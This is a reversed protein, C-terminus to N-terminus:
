RDARPAAPAAVSAPVVAGDSSHLRTLRGVRRLSQRVAQRAMGLLRAVAPRAADEVGYLSSAPARRSPHLGHAAALGRWGELFRDARSHHVGPRLPARQNEASGFICPCRECPGEFRKHFLRRRLDRYWQHNWVEDLEMTNVDLGPMQGFSCAMVEGTSRVKIEYFPDVCGLWESHPGNQLVPGSAVAPDNREDDELTSRFLRILARHRTAIERCAGIVQRVEARQAYIGEDALTEYFIVLPQIHVEDVGLPLVDRLVRPLEHLNRRMLTYAIGVRPYEVMAERRARCLRAVRDRVVTYPVGRIARNSEMGDLSVVVSGVRNRVLEQCRQPTLLLGNTNFHITPRGTSALALIRDFEPHILPEGVMNLNVSMARRLWPLLRHVTKMDIDVSPHNETTGYDKSCHVCALNCRSTTELFVQRPPTRMRGSEPDFDVLDEKLM